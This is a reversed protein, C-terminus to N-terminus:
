GTKQRAIGVVERIAELVLEPQHEHIAHDSREAIIQKSPAAFNLFERQLSTELADWKDMPWVPSPASPLGRTLVILPFDFIRRAAHIQEISKMRDINGDNKSSDKVSAWMRHNLEESQFSEALTYRDEHVADILVM